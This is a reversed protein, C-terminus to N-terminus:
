RWAGHLPVCWFWGRHRLLVRGPLRHELAPGRSRGPHVDAAPDLLNNAGVAVEFTGAVRVTVEADLIAGAEITVVEEFMFPTM